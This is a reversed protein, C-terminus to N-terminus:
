KGQSVMKVDDKVLRPTIFIVLERRKREKVNHRFLGGILPLQGLGPVEERGQMKQQQFIGGLALTEGNRVVVQTDIEQKDITLLEKEDRRISRGPLNQSIHLKLLIRDDPQVVPTVAMGLVAERFEIATAGTSGSSVEYPIETGQKISAPQQHSTFLRPSAIIDLQNQRELASLQLDLLRGEIRAINMGLRGTPNSVALGVDAASVGPASAPSAATSESLGWSVGLEHLRDSSIAVIHAALEIQAVPVDLANVWAVVRKLAAKTDRLLLANTRSDLTISGGPTMLKDREAQLSDGVAHIDAWRLAIRQNEMPQRALAAAKRAKEQAVAERQWSQPWILLVEGERQSVLQTMRTVVRLAQSWPVALLNLSLEGSVGPAIALNLGQHRALAQLIKDVPANDFVLSIKANLPQVLLALLLLSGTAIRKM